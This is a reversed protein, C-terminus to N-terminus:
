SAPSSIVRNRYLKEWPCEGIRTLRAAATSNPILMRRTMRFRTSRLTASSILLVRSATLLSRQSGTERVSFETFIGPAHSAGHEPCIKKPCLILRNEAQAYSRTGIGSGADPRPDAQNGRRGNRGAGRRRHGPRERPKRSEKGHESPMTMGACSRMPGQSVPWRTMAERANWSNMPVGISSSRRKM